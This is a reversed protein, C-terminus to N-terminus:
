AMKRTNMRALMMMIGSPQNVTFIAVLIRLTARLMRIGVMRSNQMTPENAMLLETQPTTSIRNKPTAANPNDWGSHNAVWDIILKMGRSHAADVLSQFDAATGYSPNVATYDAISYPSGLSGKRNKVSIPQIPMLWLTEVGLSELRPLQAEVAAFTGADSFQRVNVEYIVSDAAWEPLGSAGASAPSASLNAAVLAVVAALVGLRKM